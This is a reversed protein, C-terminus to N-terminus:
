VSKRQKSKSFLSYYSKEPSVANEGHFKLGYTPMLHNHKNANPSRKKMATSYVSRMTGGDDGGKSRPKMAVRERWASRSDDGFRLVSKAPSLVTRRKCKRWIQVFRSVKKKQNRIENHAIPLDFKNPPFAFPNTEFDSRKVAKKTKTNM